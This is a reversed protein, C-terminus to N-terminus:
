TDPVSTPVPKEAAFTESTRTPDIPAPEMSQTAVDDSNGGPRVMSAVMPSCTDGNSGASADRRPTPSRPGRVDRHAEALHPGVRFMALRRFDHRRIQFEAVCGQEPVHEPM